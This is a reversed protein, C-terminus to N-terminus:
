PLHSMGQGGFRRLMEPLLYNADDSDIVTRTRYLPLYQLIYLLISISRGLETLSARNNLCYNIGIRVAGTPLESGWDGPYSCFRMLDAPGLDFPGEVAQRAQWHRSVPREKQERSTRSGAFPASKKNKLEKERDKVHKKQDKIVSPPVM